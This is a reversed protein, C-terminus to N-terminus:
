FALLETHYVCCRLTQFCSFDENKLKKTTTKHAASIKHKALLYLRAALNCCNTMARMNQVLILLYKMVSVDGHLFTRHKCM